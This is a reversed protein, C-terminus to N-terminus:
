RNENITITGLSCIIDNVNLVDKVKLYITHFHRGSM